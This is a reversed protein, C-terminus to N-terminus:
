SGHTATEFARRESRSAPPLSIVRRRVGRWTWVCFLVRDDIEAMTEWRAEDQPSKPSLREVRPRGDFVRSAVVLRLARQAQTAADKDDSWDLDDTEGV